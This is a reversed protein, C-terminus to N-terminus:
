RKLTTKGGQPGRLNHCRGWETIFTTKDRSAKSLPISNFEGFADLVTKKKHPPLHPPIVCVQNWPSPTHHTLRKTVANLKQLDVVRRPSGDLKAVVIM